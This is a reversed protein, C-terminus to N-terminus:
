TTRLGWGDDNLVWRRTMGLWRRTMGLRLRPIEAAGSGLNMGRSLVEAPIVFGASAVAFRVHLTTADRSQAASSRRPQDRGLSPADPDDCLRGVARRRAGGRLFGAGRRQRVGRSAASPEPASCASAARSRKRCTTSRKARLARRSRDASPAARPGPAPSAATLPATWGRFACSARDFRAFRTVTSETSGIARPTSAVCIPPRLGENLPSM